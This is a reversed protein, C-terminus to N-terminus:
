PLKEGAQVAVPLVNGAPPLPCTAFETFACPLNVLRNLDVVVRGDVPDATQVSRGGVYTTVGNTADRLHLSLGGQKGATAVLAHQTGDLAIRVVGVATRHHQLGDLVADVTFPVPEDYPEFVADLVWRADVDFAPVGTFATRAPAQPDRVRLVHVDSRRAVEVVRAGARVLTGPLGDLPHLTVTGDVPLPGRVGRVALGDAADATLVAGDPTASWRGAVGDVTSPEPTLRHLATRSLWGHPARLQEERDAHWADWAPHLDLTATM